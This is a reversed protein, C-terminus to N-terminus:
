DEISITRAEELRIAICTKGICVSITSKKVGLMNVHVQTGKRAGFSLLRKKLEGTAEISKIVATEGINLDALTKM